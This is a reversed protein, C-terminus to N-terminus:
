GSWRARSGRVDVHTFTPYSGLGGNHGPDLYAYVQGSPVDRVVIDAATGKLHESNSAGGVNANHTPCRYGSNITVPKGGFQARVDELIALLEQPPAGDPLKGCHNCTFEDRRFHASVYGDPLPTDPVYDHAPDYGQTVAWAELNDLDAM